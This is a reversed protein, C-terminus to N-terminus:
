LEPDRTPILGVKPVQLVHPAKVGTGGCQGSGNGRCGAPNQANAMLTVAMLALGTLFLKTKM